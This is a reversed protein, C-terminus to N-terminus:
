ETVLELKHASTCGNPRLYFGTAGRGLESIWYRMAPVLEDVTSWEIRLLFSALRHMQVGWTM